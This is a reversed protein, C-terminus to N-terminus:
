NHDKKLYQSGNIETVTEVLLFLSFLPFRNESVLFDTEVLWFTSNRSFYKQVLRSFAM